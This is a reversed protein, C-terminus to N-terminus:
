PGASPLDSLEGIWWIRLVRYVLIGCVGAQAILFKAATNDIVFGRFFLFRGLLVSSFFLVALLIATLWSSLPRREEFYKLSLHMVVLAVFVLDVTALPFRMGRKFPNLRLLLLCGFLLGISVARGVYIWRPRLGDPVQAAITWYTLVGFLAAGIAAAHACSGVPGFEISGAATTESFALCVDYVVISALHGLTLLMPPRLM